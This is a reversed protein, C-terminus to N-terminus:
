HVFQRVVRQGAGQFERQFEPRTARRRQSRDLRQHNAWAFIRQLCAEGCFPLGESLQQLRVIPRQRQKSLEYLAASDEIELVM